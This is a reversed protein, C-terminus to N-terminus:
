RGTHTMLARRLNDRLDREFAQHGQRTLNVMLICPEPHCGRVTVFVEVRSSEGATSAVGIVELRSDYEAAVDRSLATVTDISLIEDRDFANTPTM